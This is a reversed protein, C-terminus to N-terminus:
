YIVKALYLGNGIAPRNYIKKEKNLQAKLDEISVKNDDIALLFGVMLRIQTRLYSNAKFKFIYFEKYEYFKTEYVQKIFNKKDSGEKKFYEFNHTGEFVKIAEKLLNPNNIKKYSFFKHNFANLEKKSIIYRYVRKKASFRANFDDSVKEIRKVRIEDCLANNFIRKLKEFDNFHEPFYANFVQNSAHVDSDTRGSLTIRSDVKLFNLVNALNNEVGKGNPQRQSGQFNSGDYEITFKLNM